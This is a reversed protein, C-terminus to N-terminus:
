RTFSRCRSATPWLGMPKREVLHGDVLEYDGSEALALFEDVSLSKTEPEAFTTM